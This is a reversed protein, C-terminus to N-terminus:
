IGCLQPLSATYPWPDGSAVVVIQDPGLPCLPAPPLFAPRSVWDLGVVHAEDPASPDVLLKQYELFIPSGFNCVPNVSRGIFVMALDPVGEVLVLDKFPDSTAVWQAYTVTFDETPIRAVASSTAGDSRTATLRYSYGPRIPEASWFNYAFQEDGGDLFPRYTALVPNMVVTRGTEVEELTVMADIPDPDTLVTPRLENVRVWQTDAAPDLHGAISYVWLSEELPEFTSDCGATVLLGLLTARWLAGRRM